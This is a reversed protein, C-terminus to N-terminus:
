RIKWLFGHFYLFIKKFICHEILIGDETKLDFKNSILILSYISISNM